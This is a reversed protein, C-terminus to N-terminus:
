DGVDRHTVLDPQVDVGDAMPDLGDRDRTDARLRVARRQRNIRVGPRSIDLDAPRVTEDQAVLQSNTGGRVLLRDGDGRDAFRTRGASADVNRWRKGLRM